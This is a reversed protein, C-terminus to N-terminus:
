ERGGWWISLVYSLAWLAALWDYPAGSEGHAVSWWFAVILVGAMVQSARALSAIDLHRWREDSPRGSLLKLTESRRALGVLVGYAM